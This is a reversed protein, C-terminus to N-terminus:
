FFGREDGLIAVRQKRKTASRAYKLVICEHNYSGYFPLDLWFASFFSTLTTKALPGENTMAPWLRLLGVFNNRPCLGRCDLLKDSPIFEAIEGNSVPNGCVRRTNAIVANNRSKRDIM